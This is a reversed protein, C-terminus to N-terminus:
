SQVIVKSKRNERGSKFNHLRMEERCRCERKFGASGDAGLTVTVRSVRTHSLAGPGIVMSRVPLHGRRNQESPGLRVVPFVHDRDRDWYFVVAALHIGSM